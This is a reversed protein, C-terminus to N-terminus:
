KGRFEKKLMMKKLVGFENEVVLIGITGIIQEGKIAVWYQDPVIPTENTPKHIMEEEFELAIDHMVKDIGVQHISEYSIIKIM